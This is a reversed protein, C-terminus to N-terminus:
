FNIKIDKIKLWKVNEINSEFAEVSFSFDNIGKRKSYERNNLISRNRLEDPDNQPPESNPHYLSYFLGEENRKWVCGHEILRDRTDMDSCGWGVFCPNLGNMDFFLKRSFVFVGGYHESADYKFKRYGGPIKSEELEENNENLFVVQKVPSLPTNETPPIYSVNESPVYDVDHFILIDGTANKAGVNYLAHKKFIEKDDQECIIIEYKKNRFKNQFVPLITQLHSERDRYSIIISYKKDDKFYTWSTGRVKINEPGFFEDVAKKVGEWDYDHGAIIRDGKLKPFWCKLDNIVSEYKHDADIFIFDLSENEYLKSADESSMRLPTIVDEINADKVNKNFVRFLIDEGDRKYYYGTQDGPQELEKVGRADWYDVCDLKINKGSNKIEVGLFMSSKGLLAGIEVFRYGDSAKKVEELYIDEFNFFGLINQYTHPLKNM